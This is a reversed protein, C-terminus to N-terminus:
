PRREKIIQSIRQRNLGFTEGIVRREVGVLDLMDVLGDRAEFSKAPPLEACFRDHYIGPFESNPKESVGIAARCGRCRVTGLV